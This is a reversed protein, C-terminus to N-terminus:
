LKSTMEVGIQSLISRVLIPFMVHRGLRAESVEDAIKGPRRDSCYGKEGRERLKLELALEATKTFSVQMGSCVHARFTQLLLFWLPLLESSFTYIRYQTSLCPVEIPTNGSCLSLRFDQIFFWM